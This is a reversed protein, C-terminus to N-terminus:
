QKRLCIVWEGEITSPHLAEKNGKTPVFVQEIEILGLSMLVARHWSVVPSCAVKGGLKRDVCNKANLIFIGRSKLADVSNAWVKEHLARYQTTNFHFRGTNNEHLDVERGVHARLRHVYTNRRSHENAKFYDSCANGYVPSSCIADAWFTFHRPDTSDAPRVIDDRIIFDPEIEFGICFRNSLEALEGLRQGTGAFPDAVLAWEDTHELLLRAMVPLLERSYRAPHWSGPDRAM